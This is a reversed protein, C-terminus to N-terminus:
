RGNNANYSPYRNFSGAPQTSAAPTRGPTLSAGTDADKTVSGYAPFSRALRGRRDNYAPNDNFRASMHYNAKPKSPSVRGAPMRTGGPSQQPWPGQSGSASGRASGAGLGPGAVGPAGMGPAAMAGAGPPAQGENSGGLGYSSGIGGRAQQAAMFYMLANAQNTSVQTMYPNLYPNMAPNMYPNAYPNTYGAGLTALAAPRQARSVVPQGFTQADVSGSSCWALATRVAWGAVVRRSRGTM